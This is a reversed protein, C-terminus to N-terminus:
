EAVPQRPREPRPPHALGLDPRAEGPAPPHVRDLRGREHHPEVLRADWGPARADGAGAYPQFALRRGALRHLPARGPPRAPGWAHTLPLHTGLSRGGREGTFPNVYEGSALRADFRPVGSASGLGPRDSGVLKIKLRGLGGARREDPPELRPPVGVRAACGCEG